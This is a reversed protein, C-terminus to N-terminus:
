SYNAADQLAQQYGREYGALYYQQLYHNLTTKHSLPLQLAHLVWDGLGLSSLYQAPQYNYERYYYDATM